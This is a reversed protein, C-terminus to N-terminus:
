RSARPFWLHRTRIRSSAIHLSSSDVIIARIIDLHKHPPHFHYLPTLSIAERKGHQRTFRLHKDFFACISFFFFFTAQFTCQNLNSFKGIDENENSFINQLNRMLIYKVIQSICVHPIYFTQKCVHFDKFSNVLHLPKQKKRPFISTNRM